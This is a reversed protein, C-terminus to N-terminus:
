APGEVNITPVGRGARVVVLESDTDGPNSERHIAGPPVHLFTGVGADIVARGGQGSEMRLSGVAVYISTEYGGHHHWGSAAGPATRVLGAWMGDVAFAEERVIGSTPDAGVRAEPPVGRVPHAASM